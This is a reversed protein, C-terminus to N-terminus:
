LWVSVWLLQRALRACSKGWRSQADGANQEMSEKIGDLLEQADEVNEEEEEEEGEEEGEGTDKPAVIAEQIGCPYGLQSHGVTLTVSVTQGTIRSFTETPLTGLLLCCAFTQLIHTDVM